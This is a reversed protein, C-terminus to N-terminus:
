RPDVELLEDLLDVFVQNNEASDSAILAHNSVLSEGWAQVSNWRLARDADSEYEHQQFEPIYQPNSGKYVFGTAQAAGLFDDYRFSDYETDENPLWERITGAGALSVVHDFRAGAVEAAMVNATGWSHGIGVSRPLDAGDSGGAVDLGGQFAALRQGAERAISTTNAEGLGDAVGKISDPAVGEDGGPFRGDKYVFAVSDLRDDKIMRAAFSQVGGKGSWFDAMKSYTGPVYTYVREPARGVPWEGLMEVIRDADRDYTYLQVRPPVATAGRLYANERELEAMLERARPDDLPHRAIDDIVRQNEVVQGAATSANAKIRALPPVGDLNGILWPVALVLAQQAVSLGDGQLPRLRALSDWWERVAEPSAQAILGALLPNEGFLLALEVVSLGDLRRLAEEPTTSERIEVAAALFEGAAAGYLGAICAGDAADRREVLEAWRRGVWALETRDAEEGRRLAQREVDRLDSGSFPSAAEEAELVLLSDSTRRLAAAVEARRRELLRQVSAIDGVEVGYAELVVGHQEVADMLTAFETVLLECADCFASGAEARWETAAWRLCSELRHRGLGLDDHKERRVRALRAIGAPDGKGPDVEDVSM